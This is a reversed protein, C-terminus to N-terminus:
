QIAELLLGKHGRRELLGRQRQRRRRRKDVDSVASFRINQARRWTIEVLLLQMWIRVSGVLLPSSSPIKLWLLGVRGRRELEQTYLLVDKLFVARVAARTCCVISLSLSLSILSKQCTSQTFIPHTSSSFLGCNKYLDAGLIVNKFVSERHVIKFLHKHALCFHMHSSFLIWSCFKYLHGKLQFYTCHTQNKDEQM